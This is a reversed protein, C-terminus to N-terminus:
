TSDRSRVDPNDGLRPLPMWSLGDRQRVGRQWPLGKQKGIGRYDAYNSGGM